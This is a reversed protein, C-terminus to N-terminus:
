RGAPHGSKMERAIRMERRFRKWDSYRTSFFIETLTVVLANGGLILTVWRPFSGVLSIVFTLVSVIATTIAGSAHMWARRSPPVQLYSDYDIKIGPEIVLKGGLFLSTFRIGLIRGVIYHTLDHTAVMLAGSGGLLLWSKWRRSGLLSAVVSVIGILSGIGLVTVGLWVTVRLKVGRDFARRDIAAIREAYGARWEPHRKVATVAKWFGLSPLDVKGGGDLAAECAALISELEMERM